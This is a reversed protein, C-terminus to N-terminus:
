ADVRCLGADYDYVTIETRKSVLLCLFVIEAIHSPM